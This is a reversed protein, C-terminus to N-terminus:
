EVVKIQGAMWPHLICIYRFTGANEFTVTFSESSGPIDDIFAKPLLWGSNVYKESGKMTYSANPGLNTPVDSSDIVYPFFGRANIALVGSEEEGLPVILPESNIQNPLTQVANQDSIYYPEAFQPTYSNDLIFTVTHPETARTPNYFKVSDGINIELNQPYYNMVIIRAGGGGVKVKYMGTESDYYYKPSQKNDMSVAPKMETSEATTTPIILGVSIAFIMVMSVM